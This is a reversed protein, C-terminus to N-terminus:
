ILSYLKCCGQLMNLNQGLSAQCATELFIQKSESIYNGFPKSIEFYRHFCWGAKLFWGFFFCLEVVRMLFPFCVVFQAFFAFM